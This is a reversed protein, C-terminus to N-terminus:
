SKTSDKVCGHGAHYDYGEVGVLRATGALNADKRGLDSVIVVRQGYGKEVKVVTHIGDGEYAYRLRMGPAIDGVSIANSPLSTNCM